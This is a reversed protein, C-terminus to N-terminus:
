ITLINNNEDTLVFGEENTTAELVGMEALLELADDSTEEVLGINTRAQIQQEETLEQENYSIYDLSEIDTKRAITDPIFDEDLRKLEPEALEFEFTHENDDNYMVEFVFEDGTQKVHLGFPVGREAPEFLIPWKQMQMECRDGDWYFVWKEYLGQHLWYALEHAIAKAAAIQVPNSSETGGIWKRGSSTSAKDYKPSLKLTIRDKKYHTRDEWKAVGDADTVLQQFADTTSPIKADVYDTTAVEKAEADDQGVGGVKINGAFWANGEWDITHANSRTSYYNNNEDYSTTGNGVITIYKNETDEINNRGSVMQAYGSAITGTGFASAMDGSAEGYGQAFTHFGKASGHNVAVSNAGSASGSGISVSEQGSAEAQSSINGIKVSNYGEGPAISVGLFEQNIPKPVQLIAFISITGSFGVMPGNLTYPPVSLYLTSVPFGEGETMNINFYVGNKPNSCIGTYSQGNLIVRCPTRDSAEFLSTIMFNYNEPITCEAVLTKEEETYYALRDEWKVNGESDTVLQQNAESNRLIEVDSKLAVEAPATWDPDLTITNNETDIIIPCVDDGFYVKLKNGMPYYRTARLCYQDGTPLMIVREITYFRGYENVLRRYLESYDPYSCQLRGPIIATMDVISVKEADTITVEGNEDPAVGNITKVSNAPATWNTDLTITNNSADVIIPASGDNFDIKRARIGGDAATVPGVNSTYVDSPDHENLYLRRYVALVGNGTLNSIIEEATMNCQLPM